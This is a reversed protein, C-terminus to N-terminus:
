RRWELDAEDTSTRPTAVKGTRGNVPVDAIQKSLRGRAVQIVIERERLSLLGRASTRRARASDTRLPGVMVGGKPLCIM